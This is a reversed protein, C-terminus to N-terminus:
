LIDGTSRSGKYLVARIIVTRNVEDIDFIVRYDGVRLQWVPKVHEFSPSAGHLMKTKVTAVGPAWRLCEDVEDLVRNRDYSRLDKLHELALRAYRIRFM